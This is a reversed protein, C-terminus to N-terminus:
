TAVEQVPVARVPFRGGHQSLHSPTKSVGEILLVGHARHHVHHGLPHRRRGGVQSLRRRSKLHVIQLLHPRGERLHNQFALFLGLRLRHFVRKLLHRRDYLGLDVLAKHLLADDLGAVLDELGTLHYELADVARHPVQDAVSLLVLNFKVHLSDLRQRLLAVAVVARVPMVCPLARVIDELEVGVGRRAPLLEFLQNRVKRGFGVRLRVDGFGEFPECSNELLDKEIELGRPGGVLHAVDHTRHEFSRCHVM